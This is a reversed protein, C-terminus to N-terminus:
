TAQATRKVMEASHSLFAHFCFTYVAHLLFKLHLAYCWSLVSHTLKITPLTANQEMKKAHVFNKLHDTCNETSNGQNWSFTFSFRAFLNVHLMFLVCFCSHTYFMVSHYYMTPLRSVPSLPMKNQKLNNGGDLAVLCFPSCVFGCITYLQMILINWRTSARDGGACTVHVHHLVWRGVSPTCRSVVHRRGATSTRAVHPGVHAWGVLIAYTKAAQSVQGEGEM